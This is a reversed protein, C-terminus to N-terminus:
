ERRMGSEEWSVVQRLLRFQTFRRGSEVGDFLHFVGAHRTVYGAAARRGFIERVREREKKQGFFSAIVQEM